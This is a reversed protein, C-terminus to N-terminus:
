AAPTQAAPAQVPELKKLLLSAALALVAAAIAIIFAVPLGDAVGYMGIVLTYVAIGMASGFSQTVQIVSNSMMRLEPKIQIQPAAAFTVSQQSNYIGALLMLVYVIWLPTSPSLFFLFCATIVIRIITGGALVTRANGAKAIMRGLFPSIVLGLVGLLTTTLSAQTATGGMVYLVYTPMFFFVAMGSFNLTLNAFALCLTNRDKFVPAPIIAGSQKKRVVLILAVLSVAAAALLINSAM